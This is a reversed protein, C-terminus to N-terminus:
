RVLTTIGHFVHEKGGRTKVKIAYSYVGEPALAGDDTKGDWFKLWSDTQYVTQGWRNFISMEFTLVDLDYGANFFFDNIGDDNPTFANPIYFPNVMVPRTIKDPCGNINLVTLTVPFDGVENFYHSPNQDVVGSGDGFDWSWSVANVSLDTFQIKGNFVNAFEPDFKFDAEALPYFIVEVDNSVTDACGFPTMIYLTATYTGQNEYIHIPNLQNTGTTDGFDWTFSSLPPYTSTNTFFIRPTNCDSSPVHTFSAVPTQNVLFDINTSGQCGNTDTVVVVYNGATTVTNLPNNVGNSWNYDVFGPTASLTSSDGDCIEFDGTITPTPLPNVVVDAIGVFTGPCNNDDLSVISYSASSQPSVPIDTTTTGITIPGFNSVGDTYTFTFPAEGTFNFYLPTQDGFCIATSGFISGTPIDNVILLQSTSGICGNNDTVTVTYTGAIGTTITQGFSGDSWIFSSYPGADFTTSTGDCITSDGTIVPVPNLNVVLAQSDTGTCGNNDTVTVTYTGNATVTVNQTAGLGGSWQYSNYAGADFISQDGDCITDVGTIVPTPNPFIVVSTTVSDTCGNADTITVTYSGATGPNITASSLGNSWQYTAMGPNADLTATFGQCADFDGNIQAVPNANVILTIQDDGICGNNDTVTVTYTGASSSSFTQGSSGDSWVFSSYPGADFTTSTGDCITSDGTIVPVPNLNVVLAQSDTGTCGNNDTVTVTYTGNATVTVNQTAGLGGSWQYSNYAGADFISQDGDCITDVGTIVPTPNPFIVVSTTVSDTCGNADTITVTYSGATGPNITASSLGNSWHYTAMGPNADLTATFGQCADFDGNIQAVPNANVILTIQDNGICGNNDTVTVTYTGASSSSITQGSSGDSWVFSSYPGADFTTSTGDCITSDGTIVPVPNLNVVLAQSDTGTCGNNDTVTVTYTGNATVTVNQTAGLGGSWQYSNYAGADFISQDGDCITDVGTIIPTPNPFIVVSTTVSDTCGNADTITVTYPGAAGPNITASSLGNSWQYTAMGPNADLTATFGQCADFDGNIQAVPNANVILTIQDDGICGNNDTVTVTYTGASSSSFTQGSSGDSWVFSTYPGADFTTSTGDCITSDGTIVPVPNLNVVLAQSDTGTCGNNDTVTVTYTGNATVTVNQTAGLGGSWQYSNYAGADFVSQQGDCITDNGTIAPTPNPFIVVSTTESDTCGNADTITVTYPGATGPNITASSLGNSWQYTTMGTNANLTANAGQCADLDGSITAVPNAYVTLFLQDTGTCGQASTVTVTYTGQISPSVTQTTGLGSSWQYSSYGPGASLTTSTGACITSDGAITPSPNPNVVLTLTDTGTCGFGNTVTVIYNGPISASSTQASGLGGSWQYSSFGGGANLISSAGACITDNGTITPVPVPNVTLSRTASGTCGNADTVTVTYTGSVTPSVQQTNGLGGSWQYISYGPGADFITSGDACIINTGSIAPQPPAAVTVVTSDTGSCGGAVTVTVTYTGTNVVTISQTIQGTSWLYTNGVTQCTLVVNTGVCVVPNLPQIVVVPNPNNVFVTDTSSWSICGSSDALSVRYVIDAVCQTQPFTDTYNLNFTSDILTWTGAPFERHIMYKNGSHSSLPPTSLANWSLDANTGNLVADLKITRLINSSDSVSDGDCGSRTKLYYYISQQQANTGFLANLSAASHVYSYSAPNLFGTKISDVYQYPGAQNLSAYIDYAYWTNQTDRPTSKNWTLNVSGDLNISACRLVPPDLKPPRVIVITITKISSANAPCYNDRAKIVFNYTNVIRRCNTDLGEVQQCNTVWTFNTVTAFPAQSVLNPSLLTPSAPALTACPPIVCGNTTSSFNTGFEAGSAEITVTQPTGNNFTQFDTASFQFRVTDGAYVTDIYSTFLGTVPDPFPPNVIPPANTQGGTTPCNNNLVVNIERFIEAVKINCKYATVKVVTAFYGGTFSTYAIEGTTPNITAAVNNPNQTTSPLQSNQNYGPAWAVPTGTDTLPAGWEYRLSDLEPDIANPNYTFPYGTCIITSPKEAFYPSSDFCPNTNQAVGSPNYPYMIARIRFGITGPNTINNISGSRCCEGWYFQWGAAPPTGNLTIPASEYVDEEVLGINATGTACTPCAATGAPILGKPSIDNIQVRPMPINPVGPVTTTLTVSNPAPIGSCDRYFKLRFKFQGNPQCTWTLEGGMGHSAKTETSHLLSWGLIILLLLHKKM